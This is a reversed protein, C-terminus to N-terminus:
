IKLKSAFELLLRRPRLFASAELVVASFIVRIECTDVGL